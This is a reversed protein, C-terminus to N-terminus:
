RRYTSVVFACGVVLAVLGCITTLRVRHDNDETAKAPALRVVSSKMSSVEMNSQLLERNLRDRLDNLAKIDARMIDADISSRGFKEVENRLKGTRESLEKQMLEHTAISDDLQAVSASDKETGSKAAPQAKSEAASRKRQLVKLELEVQSLQKWLHSYEELTLRQTPTLVESDAIGLANSLQRLESRKRRLDTLVETHANQLTSVRRMKENRDADVVERLYVEVVADALTEATRQDECRVSVNM